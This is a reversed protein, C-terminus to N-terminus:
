KLLNLERNTLSLTEEFVVRDLKWIHAGGSHARVAIELLREPSILDDGNLL